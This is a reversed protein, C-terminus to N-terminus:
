KFPSNFSKVHPTWPVTEVKPIRNVKFTKLKDIGKSKSKITDRIPDM